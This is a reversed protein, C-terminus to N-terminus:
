RTRLKRGFEYSEKAAYPHELGWVSKAYPIMRLFHAKWKPDGKEYKGNKDDGRYYIDSDDEKAWTTGLMQYMLTFIDYLASVGVPCLDQFNQNKTEPFWILAQQELMMRYALYHIIGVTPDDEEEDDDDDGGATAAQIAMLVCISAVSMFFRRMNFNQEESFGADIMAKKSRPSWPWILTIFLDKMSMSNYSFDKKFNHKWFGFMSQLTVKAFTNMYGEVYKDRSLSYHNGSFLYELSGLVWGKMALIMRGFMNQHFATKNQTDYIGHMLINMEGAKQMYAIEDQKTWIYKYLDNQVLKVIDTYYNEGQTINYRDLYALEELTFNPASFPNSGNSLYNEVKSLIGYLTGIHQCHWKKFDSESMNKFQDKYQNLKRGSARKYGPDKFQPDQTLLWDEFTILNREPQKFLCDEFSYHQSLTTVDSGNQIIAGDFALRKSTVKGKSNKTNDELKYSDWLTRKNKFSVGTPNISIKSLKIKHALALYSMAQMYHDGSSYPLYLTNAIMKFIRSKEPKWNQFKERNGRQFDMAELFLSLKDDKREKGYAYWMPVFNSFYYKNAFALDKPDFVDGTTGEKLINVVGTGTNVAGGLVNGGLYIFGALSSLFESVKNLLLRRTKTFPIGWHTAKIGYVNARLYKVYRYYARGIDGAEILQHEGKSKRFKDGFTIYQKAAKQVLDSKGHYVRKALAERGVELSDLISSTANYSNAMAVYALMSGCLDASLNNINQLKNIGFTALREPKEEEYDLTVGFLDKESNMTHLNGYDQEEGTESFTDLITRRLTTKVVSKDHRIADTLTGRFQPLRYQLAAGIPLGSDVEQKIELYKYVWHSLRNAGTKKDKYKKCLKNWTDDIYIGNPVWRTYENGTVSDKCKVKLSNAAHWKKMEKRCFTDWKLMRSLGSLNDLNPNAQKFAEEIRKMEADKRKEWEGHNITPSYGLEDVYAQYIADEEKNGYQTPGAPPAVINGTINGDFDRELLEDMNLGMDKADQELQMLREQYQLTKDDASKNVIKVAKEVIQGIIDPNNSMSGLYKHFVDIDEVGLGIIANLIDQQTLNDGKDNHGLNKWLVGVSGEIYKKGYIDECFKAFFSAEKNQLKTTYHLLANSTDDIVKRLNITHLVGATDEYTISDLTGNNPIIIPGGPHTPDLAKKFFDLATAIGRIAVRAQRLKTGYACINDYFASPSDLDVASILNDIEKGPGIYDSIQIIAQVMGDFALTDALIPSNIADMQLANQNTNGDNSAAATAVLSAQFKGALADNAIDTLKKATRGLEDAIMKLTQQNMSYTSNAMTEEISLSNEVSFDPNKSIFGYAIRDAIQEAKAACWRVEDGSIKFFVRRALNAIRNALNNVLSQKGLRRQLAKGVLRGAIERPPNNGLNSTEYEEDGLAERQSGSEKLLDELRKVLPNNGLAGVAFHGAEEAMVETVSGHQSIKILNYCGNVAESINETSYRGGQKDSELFEVSVKYRRLLDILKKELEANRVTDHLKGKEDIEQPTVPAKKDSVKNVQPTVTVFYKGDKGAYMTALFKSSMPNNNNFYEIKSIAEEYSYNGEGIEKRLVQLTEETKLDMPTLELLSKLTIEGNEDEKYKDSERAKTLFEENTGVYYYRKTLTRNNATYHLLDKYLKSEVIKGDKRVHALITCSKGM